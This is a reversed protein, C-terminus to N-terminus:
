RGAREKRTQATSTKAHSQTRGEELMKRSILFEFSHSRNAFVYRSVKEDVWRLIERDITVTIREKM